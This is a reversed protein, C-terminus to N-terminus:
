QQTLVEEVSPIKGCSLVIKKINEESDDAPLKVQPVGIIEEKETSEVGEGDAVTDSQPSSYTKEERLRELREKEVKEKELRDKDAREKEAREKEKEQKEHRDKKGKKSTTVPKEVSQDESASQGDESQPLAVIGQARDWYELIQSIKKQNRDYRHFRLFLQKEPSKAVEDELLSNYKELFAHSM